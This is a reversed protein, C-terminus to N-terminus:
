AWTMEGPLFTARRIRGPVNLLYRVVRRASLPNGDEVEPYVVIGDAALEAVMEEDAVAENWEENVVSPTVWAECGYENLYHCLKHLARIGASTRRYDHALIRYPRM